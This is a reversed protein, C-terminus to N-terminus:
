RLLGILAGVGAITVGGKVACHWKPKGLCSEAGITLGALVGIPFGIVAGKIAGSRSQSVLPRVSQAPKQLVVRPIAITLCLVLVQAISKM